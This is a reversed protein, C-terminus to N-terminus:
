YSHKHRAWWVNLNEFRGRERIDRDSVLLCHKELTGAYLMGARRSSINVPTWSARDEAYILNVGDKESLANIAELQLGTMLGNGRYARRTAYDSLEYMTFATGEIDLKAGEAVLVSVIEGRSNRGVFTMNDENHAMDLVNNFDLPFLYQQYAESYINTIALIDSNGANELREVRLGNELLKTSVDERTAPTRAMLNIASEIEGRLISRNSRRGRSNWGMYVLSYGTFNYNLPILAEVAQGDGNMERLLSPHTIARVSARGAGTAEKADKVESLVSRLDHSSDLIKPYFVKVRNNTADLSPPWLTGISGATGRASGSRRQTSRQLLQSSAM